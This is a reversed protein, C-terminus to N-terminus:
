NSAVLSNKKVSLFFYELYHRSCVFLCFSAHSSHTLVSFLTFLLVRLVLLTYCPFLSLEVPLFIQPMPPSCTLLCSCMCILLTFGRARESPLAASSLEEALVALKKVPWSLVSLNLYSPTAIQDTNASCSRATLPWNQSFVHLM